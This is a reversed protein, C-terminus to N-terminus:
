ANHRHAEQQARAPRRCPRDCRLLRPPRREGARLGARRAGGQVGQRQGVAAFCDLIATRIAKLDTGLRRSEEFEDRGAARALDGAQRENSIIKLGYDREIERALDKLKNKYLGLKQVYLQGDDTERVLSYGIHLHM